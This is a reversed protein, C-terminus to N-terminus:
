LRIGIIIRNETNDNFNSRVFDIRLFRWKGFGINDLGFSFESYPRNNATFLGKSGVVLHFKLLDLYPVRNLIAGKFNHEMHLEGYKDNTSLNYYPLALFNDVYNDNPAFLLRNGNFHVYDIFQINKKKLFTGGKAEYAIIGWHGIAFDQSLQSFVLDSNWETNSAGFNKRFGVNLSPYKSNGLKIKQNPYSLYKQGFRIKANINISWINHGEFSTDFNFPTEPNNSTYSINKRPFMVYNTTNFLATRNAYEINSFLHVGNVIERSFSIKAFTKEYIKMYNREFYISSITNWLPSIPNQTNFQTITTGGSFSLIPYTRNNWKYSLFGSPRLRQDSFGYNTNLGINLHKGKNDYKKKYGIGITSNWGQVTNFALKKIPSSLSVSWKKYTNRFTYGTIINLLKFKNQKNDISDLHKKSKKIIMLSDKKQYDSVEEKTLPIPRTKNWYSTDKKTANESFSLVENTFTSDDFNPAFNYNSYTASFRGEFNFKFIGADVDIIQTTKAWIDFKKVYNYNQKIKLEKVFPIGAQMGSVLVDVGYIAWDNEVIYIHGSFVRDNKRKPILQIKNILRGNKNYITGVLKYKYYGFANNAIPSIMETDDLNFSNEYFDFNVEEAQNFSIGNNEGAVKSAIIQENFIKTKKQHKIVSITESLYIIGSRTSDLNGGLNGIENGLFKQPAKNIKLMGRSYFNATYKSLKSKSLKKNDITKQIIIDAPNEKSSVQVEELSIQEELLIINLTTYGSFNFEKKQTEFGLFQFVVTYIGKKKIELSYNGNNNTTTGTVSGELYVSAFPIPNGQKDSVKGILQGFTSNSLILLTFTVILKEFFDM